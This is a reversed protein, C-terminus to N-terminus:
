PIYLRIPPITPNRPKIVEVNVDAVCLNKDNSNPLASLSLWKELTNEIEISIKKTSAIAIANIQSIKSGFITFLLRTMGGARISAASYTRCKEIIVNQMLKTVIGKEADIMAYSFIDTYAYRLINSAMPLNIM